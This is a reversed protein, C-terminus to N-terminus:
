RRLSPHAKELARREIVLQDFAVDSIVPADKVYYRFRHDDIEACLNAHRTAAETPSLAHARQLAEPGVASAASLSLLELLDTESVVEIEHGADLLEQAKRHKGSLAMGPAFRTPDATGVVLIDTKRSVGATAQAGVDALRQQADARSLSNLTGTICVHRGHLPGEPDANSNATPIPPRKEQVRRRCNSWSGSDPYLQGYRIQLKRLLDDLENTGHEAMAALMVRAATDADAQADHHPGTMSVGAAEAVFPLRYALLRWTQRAVVLSCAYRLEPWKVATKTCAERLAGFDFAANHAVLPRGDAFDLIQDLAAPWAPAGDVMQATIGHISTNYAAFGGDGPPDVLTSFRDRIEGAVVATMGVSCISGPWYNATEFDISVWDGTM